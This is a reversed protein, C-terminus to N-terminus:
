LLTEEEEEEYCTKYRYFAELLDVDDSIVMRTWTM